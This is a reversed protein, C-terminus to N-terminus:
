IFLPKNLGECVVKGRQLCLQGLMLHGSKSVVLVEDEPLDNRDIKTWKITNIM